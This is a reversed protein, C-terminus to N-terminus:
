WRPPTPSTRWGMHSLSYVKLGGSRLKRVSEGWYDAAGQIGPVLLVPDKGPTPLLVAPEDVAIANFHPKNGFYGLDDTAPNSLPLIIVRCRKDAGAAYEGESVAVTWCSIKGATACAAVSSNDTTPVFFCWLSQGRAARILDPADLVVPQNTNSVYQAALTEGDAVGNAANQMYPLYKATYMASADGLERVLGFRPPRKFVLWGRTMMQTPRVEIALTISLGPDTRVHGVAYAGLVTGHTVLVGTGAETPM